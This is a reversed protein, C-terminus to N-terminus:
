LASPARPFGAARVDDDDIAEVQLLGEVLVQEFRWKYFQAVGFFNAEFGEGIGFGAGGGHGFEGGVFADIVGVGGRRTLPVPEGGFGGAAAAGVAGDVVDDLGEFCDAFGVSEGFCFSFFSFLRPPHFFISERSLHEQAALTNGM